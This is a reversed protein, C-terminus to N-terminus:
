RETAKERALKKDKSNRRWLSRRQSQRLQVTCHETQGEWLLESTAGAKPFTWSCRLTLIKDPLAMLIAGVPRTLFPLIEGTHLTSLPLLIRVEVGSGRM